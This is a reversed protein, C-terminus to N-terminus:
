LGRQREGAEQRKKCDICVTTVPRAKLRQLSIEEGCEECIGYTGDEIRELAEKIKVILKGDRERMHINIDLDSEITAQDVFDPAQGAIEVMKRVSSSSRKELLEQLQNNLLRKFYEKNRLPM